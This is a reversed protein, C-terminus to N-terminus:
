LDYSRRWMTILHQMPVGVGILIPRYLVKTPSSARVSRTTLLSPRPSLRASPTSRPLTVVALSRSASTSRASASSALSTSPSLSRPRSPRTRLPRLPSVTSRSSAPALRATPLQLPPRRSPLSLTPSPLLFTIHSIMLTTDSVNCGSGSRPLASSMAAKPSPQPTPGHLVDMASLSSYSRLCLVIAPTRVKKGYVQVAPTAM